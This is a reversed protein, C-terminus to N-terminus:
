ILFKKAFNKLEFENEKVVEFQQRCTQCKIKNQQQEKYVFEGCSLEVRDKNIRSCISCNSKSKTSDKNM